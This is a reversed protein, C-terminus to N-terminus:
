TVAGLAYNGSRANVMKEGAAQEPSIYQQTGLLLGTQKM